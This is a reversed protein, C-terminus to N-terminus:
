RQTCLNVINYLMEFFKGLIIESMKYLKESMKNVRM